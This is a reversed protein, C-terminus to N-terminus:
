RGAQEVAHAAARMHRAGLVGVREHLQLGHAVEDAVHLGRQALQAARGVLGGRGVQSTLGGGRARSQM